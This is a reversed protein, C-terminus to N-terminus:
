EEENEDLSNEFYWDILEHDLWSTIDNRGLWKSYVKDFLDDDIKHAGIEYFYLAELITDLYNNKDNWLTDLLEQANMM